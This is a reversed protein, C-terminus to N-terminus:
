QVSQARRRLLDTLNTIINIASVTQGTGAKKAMLFAQGGRFVEHGFGPRDPYEGDFLFKEPGFRSDPISLVQVVYAKPERM